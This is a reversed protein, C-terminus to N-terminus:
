CPFSCCLWLNMSALPKMRVLWESTCAVVSYTGTSFLWNSLKMIATGPVMTTKRKSKINNKIIISLIITIMAEKSEPQEILFMFLCTIAVLAALSNSLLPPYHALLVPLCTMMTMILLIMTWWQWIYDVFLCRVTNALLIANRFM